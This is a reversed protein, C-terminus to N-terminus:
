RMLEPAILEKKRHLEGFRTYRAAAYFCNEWFAENITNVHMRTDRTVHQFRGTGPDTVIGTHTISGTRTNRFIFHDGFEVCRLPIVTFQKMIFNLYAFTLGQKGFDSPYRETPMDIPLGLSTIFFSTQGLCDLGALTRGHVVYPVGNMRELIQEAIQRFEFPLPKPVSAVM